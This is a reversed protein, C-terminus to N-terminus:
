DCRVPVSAEAFREFLQQPNGSPVYYKGICIGGGLEVFQVWKYKLICLFYYRKDIIVEPTGNVDITTANLMTGILLTLLLKKM